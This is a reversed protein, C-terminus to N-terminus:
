TRIAWDPEGSREYVLRVNPMDNDEVKAKIFADDKGFGAWRQRNRVELTGMDAVMLATHDFHPRLSPWPEDDLLLYNGETIVLRV